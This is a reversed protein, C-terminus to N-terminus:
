RQKKEKSPESDCARYRHDIVFIREIARDRQDADKDCQGANVNGKCGREDRRHLHQDIGSCDHNQNDEDDHKQIKVFVTWQTSEIVEIRDSCSQTEDQQHL